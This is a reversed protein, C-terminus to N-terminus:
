HRQSSDSYWWSLWVNLFHCYLSWQLLESCLQLVVTKLLWVLIEKMHCFALSDAPYDMWWWLIFFNHAQGSLTLCSAPCKLIKFTLCFVSHWPVSVKADAAFDTAKHVALVALLQLKSEVPQEQLGLFAWWCWTAWLHGELIAGWRWCFIWSCRQFCSLPHTNM